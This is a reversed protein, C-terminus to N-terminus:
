WSNDVATVLLLLIEGNTFSYKRVCKFPLRQQRSENMLPNCNDPLEWSTEPGVSLTEPHIEGSHVLKSRSHGRLYGSSLHSRSM